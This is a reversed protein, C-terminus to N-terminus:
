SLGSTLAFYRSLTIRRSLSTFVAKHCGMSVLSRSPLMLMSNSTGLKLVVQNVWVTAHSLFIIPEVQIASTNVWFGSITRLLM